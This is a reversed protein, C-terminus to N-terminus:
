IETNPIIAITYSEEQPKEKKEVQLSKLVEQRDRESLIGLTRYFDNIAKQNEPMPTSTKIAITM